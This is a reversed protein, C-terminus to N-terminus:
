FSLNLGAYLRKPSTYRADGHLLFVRYDIRLKLPGALAMKVGGGASTLLGNVADSEGIRERYFGAGVIGYFQLGAIPVPNQLYASAMATKLSPAGSDVAENASAYEFEFGVVLLGGGVAAGFTPRNAPQTTTAVFVTADAAAESAPLVALVAM